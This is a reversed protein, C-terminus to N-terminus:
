QILRPGGRSAGGANPGVGGPVPVDSDGYNANIFVNPSGTLV